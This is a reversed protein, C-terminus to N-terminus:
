LKEAERIIREVAQFQDLEGVDLIMDVFEYNDNDIGYLKLFREKDQRDREAIENLVDEFTGGERQQIRSARIELPAYLYVKLDANELLWIALRSGLVCNGASALEVQREDLHRDFSLDKQALRYLENFDMNKEDAMSHFTYNILRLGLREAVMRSVTTNGCGSKGSIAIIIDKKM